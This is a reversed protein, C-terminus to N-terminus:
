VANGTTDAAARVRLADLLRPWSPAKLREIEEELAEMMEVVARPNVHLISDLQVACAGAALACLADSGTAIGGRAIVPIDIADAVSHVLQAYHPALAPSHLPGSVRRGDADLTQGLLPEAVVVAAAGLNAAADALERANDAQVAVWAPLTTERGLAALIDAYGDPTSERPLHIELAAASGKREVYASAAALDDYSSAYLALVLPLGITTWQGGHIRMARRLGPNMGRNCLLAGGTVRMARPHGHTRPRWGLVPTVYAGLREMGEVPTVRPDYGLAGAAPLVPARLVIERKGAGLVTEWNM